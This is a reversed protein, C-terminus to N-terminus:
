KIGGCETIVSTNHAGKGDTKLLLRSPRIAKECHDILLNFEINGIASTVLIRPNEM